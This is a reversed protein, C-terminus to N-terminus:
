DARLATLPDVRSGRRAPVWSALASVLVLLVPVGAFVVVQGSQEPFLVVTLVFAIVWGILIGATTIRLSSALEDTVLRRPTAGLALRVGLESTRLSVAYSVLSYIGLGVLLLLLPGLVVFLRAPVRRFVLNTEVHETLTRVNFVPLDADIAKVAQRVGRTVATEAGARTRVHIEGQNGGGDRYSFYLAPTPPEGFANYLTTKAVGIVLHSKGRAEIQHGLAADPSAPDGGASMYREVFAQNVIVQPPASPDELSTFDRGALLPIKMVDFYGPTVTNTLAQDFEGDARERGDVNFVRSPLGHIDLPVSSSIAASEVGPVARVGELLRTAFTRIGGPSPPRGSLDFAALLVGDRVFGPDTGRTEQFSRLFLGAVILVAVALGCQVAILADRVRSRGATRAGTRFATQADVRSLQWAPIAGVLVGAALGLLVAFLLGGWDLETQFRIPLGTLPLVVLARTGWVAIAAGFAAGALGMAITEGMVAKAIHAPTAGLALRVGIEKHRASARALFLSATNGCVALLLLLMLAQLILLSFALLKQPGRPAQWFALVEARVSKNSDPYTEALGRMAADVDRQAQDRTGGAAPRGMVAYGRANRSRLERSGNAIAPAMTAPVWVDFYLGLSTGQFEPPAVGVVTLSQGNVRLQKGVVQPDGSFTSQWMGHSIVAIPEAGEARLDAAVFTRGMVPKVGLASFYNDSVLMGFARETAGPEGVYLPVMRAAILNPLSPTRARIDQYEPWSSGVYLGADNVPEILLLSMSGEVGPLPRLLRAQIWSFVSANVGIGAALSVIIVAAMAPASRLRQWIRM